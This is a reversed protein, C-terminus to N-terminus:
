IFAGYWRWRGREVLAEIGCGEEWVGNLFDSWMSSGGTLDFRGGVECEREGDM